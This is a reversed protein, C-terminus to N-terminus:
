QKGGFIDPIDLVKFNTCSGFIDQNQIAYLFINMKSVGRGGVGGGGWFFFLFFFFLLLFVVVQFEINQVGFFPWLKPRSIHSVILSGGGGGGVCVCM